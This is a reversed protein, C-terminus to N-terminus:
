SSTICTYVCVLVLVLGERANYRPGHGVVDLVNFISHLVTVFNQKCIEILFMQGPTLNM